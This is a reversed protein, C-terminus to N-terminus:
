RESVKSVLLPGEEGALSLYNRKGVKQFFSTKSDDSTEEYFHKKRNQSYAKPDLM